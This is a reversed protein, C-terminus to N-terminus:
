HRFILSDFFQGIMWINAVSFIGNKESMQAFAAPLIKPQGAPTLRRAHVLRLKGLADLLIPDSM